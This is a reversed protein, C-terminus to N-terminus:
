DSKPGRVWRFGDDYFGLAEALQPSPPSKHLRVMSLYSPSIGIQDALKRQSGQALVAQELAARVDDDTFRKGAM